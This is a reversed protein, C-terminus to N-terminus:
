KSLSRDEQSLRVLAEAAEIDFKGAYTAAKIGDLGWKRVLDESHNRFNMRVNAATFRPSLALDREFIHFNMTIAIENWTLGEPIGSDRSLHYLEMLLAEELIKWPM